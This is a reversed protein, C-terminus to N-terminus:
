SSHKEGLARTAPMPPGRRCERAPRPDHDREVGENAAFPEVNNRRDVEAQDNAHEQGVDRLQHDFRQHRHREVFGFAAPDLHRKILAPNLQRQADDKTVDADAQQDLGLVVEAEHNRVDLEGAFDLARPGRDEIGAHDDVAADGVDDIGADEVALQHNGLEHDVFQLADGVTGIAHAAAAPRRPSSM